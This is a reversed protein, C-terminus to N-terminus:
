VFIYKMYKEGHSYLRKKLCKQIAIIMIRVYM